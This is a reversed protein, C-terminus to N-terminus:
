MQSLSELSAREGLLPRGSLGPPIPVELAVLLTPLIDYICLPKLVARKLGAGYLCLFGDPHHMGSLADGAEWLRARGLATSLAVHDHALLLLRRRPSAALDDVTRLDEERYIEGIAPYATEPDTLAQLDIILEEIQSETLTEDLAMAAYGTLPGSGPLLGVPTTCRQQGATRAPALLAARRLRRALPPVRTWPSLLDSGIQRLQCAIPRLRRLQQQRGAGASLLGRRRLYEQLHFTRKIGQFSYPSVLMLLDNAALAALALGLAEDLLRYCRVVREDLDSVRDWYLHQLLDIEQFVLLCCDWPQRLLLRLLQTRAQLLHLIEALPDSLLAPLRGAVPIIRYDPITQTLEIGFDPPYAVGPYLPPSPPGSVLIGNIPEPPYTCPVNAVIVRRDWSSLLQWLAPPRLSSWTQSGPVALGYESGGCIGHRAPPLGTVLSTWVSAALPPLPARLLAHAGGEYIRRFHPMHGQAMLPKVLRLTLGDVGFLLVRM